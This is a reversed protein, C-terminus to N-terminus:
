LTRRSRSGLVESRAGLGQDSQLKFHWGAEWLGREGWVWALPVRGAVSHARAGGAGLM